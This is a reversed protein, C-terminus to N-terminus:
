SIMAEGQGTLVQLLKAGDPTGLGTCPDWGRRAQYAGNNGSTIDHLAGSNAIQGSYLLPNLYGVPEGLQQNILAVLAAWLPAVASTGGFVVERHDVRILYGTTPDADGAVDPVGRGQKGGPNVSPPVSALKQFGPLAFFESIGGGTAGAMTGENWVVEQSITANSAELRTGGCGLIYPSSAPFDVHAYGDSIGDSSGDDGAACCVTIGLAAAEQFAQDYAQLAQATWSSEPGGWSISMVSPRNQQDHIAAKIADLFGRDTNPAFYVVFQAAPALAGVIELDLMVQGDPGSPNGDPHNQAGDVSITKISPMPVGLQSFYATLDQPRYGGGLEIIAICQRHGDVGFPFNYLRALQNPTFSHTNLQRSRNRRDAIGETVADKLLRFHPKAQPRNDLGFVGQVIEALEAPVRVAGIRGRYTGGWYEYTDLSVGFAKSFAAVTGALVVSRKASSVETVTLGYAQAFAEIAALDKPDAGYAAAFEERTMHRREAPMMAGLREAALAGKLATIGIRPRVYLTVEIREKPHPAGVARAGPLAKRESGPVPVHSTNSQM